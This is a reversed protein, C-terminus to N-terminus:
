MVQIEQWPLMVSWWIYRGSHKGQPQEQEWDSVSCMLSGTRMAMTVCHCEDGPDTVRAQLIIGIRLM